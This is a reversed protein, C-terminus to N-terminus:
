VYDLPLSTTQKIEEMSFSTTVDTLDIRSTMKKYFKDFHEISPVLVKLCIILQVV